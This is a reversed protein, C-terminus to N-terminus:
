DGLPRVISITGGTIGDARWAAAPFKAWHQYRMRYWAEFADRATPGTGYRVLIRGDGDKVWEGKTSVYRVLRAKEIDIGLLTGYAFDRIVKFPVEGITIDGQKFAKTGADPNLLDQGAYRRDAQTLKLYLRRISQHGLLLSTIGGCRIDLTDALGQLGDVSLAGTAPQVYTNVNDVITRDAGGYNARYTGDDFLGLLGWFWNEYETDLPDTVTSNAAKVLFDNDAWDAGVVADFTVGSGDASLGVVKRVTTRIGGTTPNIAAVYTGKQIFRNGFTTGAIGAPSDVGMLVANNPVAADVRALVGKGSYSLMMEDRRALDDILKDFNQEQADEWAMDSRASDAIAEPTLVTRGMMKKVEVTIDIQNQVDAEAFLGYEAAAFPSKNRETHFAYVVRRGGYEKDPQKDEIIDKLPHKNNVGDSVWDDDYFDKLLGDIVATSGVVGVMLIMPGLHQGQSVAVTGVVLLGVLAILQVWGFHLRSKLTM